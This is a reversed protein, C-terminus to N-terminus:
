ERPHTKGQICSLSWLIWDKGCVFLCPPAQTASPSPPTPVEAEWVGWCDAWAKSDGKLRPCPQVASRPHPEPDPVVAGTCLCGGKGCWGHVCCAGPFRATVGGDGWVAELQGRVGPHSVARECSELGSLWLPPWAQKLSPSSGM